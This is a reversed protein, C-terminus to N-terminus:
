IRFAFSVRFDSVGFGFRAVWAAVNPNSIRVQPNRRMECKLNRMEMLTTATGGPVVGTGELVPKTQAGGRASRHGEQRDLPRGPRPLLRVGVPPRQAPPFRHQLSQRRPRLVAEFRPLARGGRAGGFGFTTKDDDSPRGEGDHGIVFFRTLNESQDQINEAVIKLGYYEAAIRGAIAAAKPDRKAVEAAQANSGVEEQPIRPFNQALWQRCQALSQSHSVIRKVRDARGSKSMLCQDIRLLIEAKVRLNSSVFRDLTAAVVGETSNEVPVVGYHVRRHEVEDFVEGISSVTV